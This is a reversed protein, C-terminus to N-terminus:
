SQNMGGALEPRFRIGIEEAPPSYIKPFPPLPDAKSVAKWASDDFLSNGSRKEFRMSLIKGDRRVKIIIIAELDSRNLLEVPLAWQKQIARWVESYYLRRALGYEAGEGVTKEGGATGEGGTKERGATGGGRTPREEPKKIPIVPILKEWSAIERSAKKTESSVEPAPELPKLALGTSEMVKADPIEIKKVPYLPGIPKNSATAKPRPASPQPKGPPKAQRIEGAEEASIIHVRYLNSAYPNRYSHKMVPTWILIVALSLHILFSLGVGTFYERAEGNSVLVSRKM